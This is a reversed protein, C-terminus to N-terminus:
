EGACTNADEIASDLRKKAFREIADFGGRTQLEQKHFSGTLSQLAFERYGAQGARALQGPKHAM